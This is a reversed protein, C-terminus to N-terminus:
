RGRAGEPNIAHKAFPAYAEVISLDQRGQIVCWSGQATLAKRTMLTLTTATM